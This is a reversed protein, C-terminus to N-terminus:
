AAIKAARLRTALLATVALRTVVMVLSLLVFAATWADAGTILNDRSFQAIATSFWHDAGYAFLTRFVIVGVWLAAFGLGASILVKGSAPDRRVKMLLTSAVGLLAGIAVGALELTLDNGATPLSRLYIFGVVAVIVVPRLLGRARFEHTGLATSLVLVLIGASLLLQFINM